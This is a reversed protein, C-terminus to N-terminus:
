SNCSFDPSLTYVFPEQYERYSGMGLGVGTNIAKLMTGYGPHYAHQIFPRSLSCPRTVGMSEITVVAVM